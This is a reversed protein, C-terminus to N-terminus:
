KILKTEIRRNQARGAETTNDAVPDAEGMGVAVLQSAPVGEKILARAVAEARKKSLKKNYSASGISDSYGLIEARQKPHKKLFDAYEHITKLSNQSVKTSKYEFQIHLNVAHTSSPAEFQKKEEKKVVPIVEVPPIVRKKATAEKQVKQQTQLSEEKYVEHYSRSNSKAGFAYNVGFLTVLNSDASGAHSFGHKLMYVAELKLAIEKTIDAKVGLAADVFPRDENGAKNTTFYEMGLGAKAFPTITDMKSFTYVGNAMIRMVDTTGGEKYRVTPAYFVSLEPAVKSTASHMQFELGGTLYANSKIGLNGEATNVGFLPSIEYKYDNAFALSSLLLTSLLLTKKM